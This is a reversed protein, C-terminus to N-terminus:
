VPRRSCTETVARSSGAGITWGHRREHRARDGERPARQRRRRRPTPSRGRKRQMFSIADAADESGQGQVLGKGSEMKAEPDWIELAAVRMGFEFMKEKTDMVYDHGKNGTNGKACKDGQTSDLMVVTTLLKHQCDQTM